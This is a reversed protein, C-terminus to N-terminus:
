SRTPYVGDLAICFPVVVFPQCNMHPAKGGAQALASSSMPIYSGDDDAWYDVDVDTDKAVFNGTPDDTTARATSYKAGHRHAPLNSPNLSADRVGGTQGQLYSSLGPGCGSGLPVRGKLNPVSFRTRGDGGYIIGLLAFLTQNQSIPISQGDCYAWGHPAYSYPFMRIEAIFPDSM